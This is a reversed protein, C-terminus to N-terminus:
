TTPAPGSSDASLGSVLLAFGETAALRKGLLPEYQPSNYFENFEQRSPFELIVTRAGAPQGEIVESDDDVVLVKCPIQSLVPAVEAMYEALLGPNTIAANVVFYVSM